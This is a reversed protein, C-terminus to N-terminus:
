KCKCFRWLIKEFGSSLFFDNESCTGWLPLIFMSFFCKQNNKPLISKLPFPCFYVFFANISLRVRKFRRWKQHSSYQCTPRRHHSITKQVLSNIYESSTEFGAFMRCRRRISKAIKLCFQQYLRFCGVGAKRLLSALRSSVSTRLGGVLWGVSM